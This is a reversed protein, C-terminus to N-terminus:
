QIVGTPERADECDFTAIAILTRLWTGLLLDDATALVALDAATPDAASAQSFAARLVKVSLNELLAIDERTFVHKGVTPIM